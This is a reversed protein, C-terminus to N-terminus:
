LLTYFYATQNKGAKKERAETSVLRESGHCSPFDKTPGLFLLYFFHTSQAEFFLRPLQFVAQLHHKSVFM